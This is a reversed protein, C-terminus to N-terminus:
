QNTIIKMVHSKFKSKSCVFIDINIFNCNYSEVMRRIPCRMGSNTRCIDVAFLTGARTSRINATRPVVYCLKSTLNICDFDGHVIGYLVSAELYKRRSELNVQGYKDLLQSYPLYTKHCRYHMARLFKRQVKEIEDIYKQYFPNWIPVAYELQSRVLTKYLYLYTSVRKFESSSRMVFGYMRFAKNVIKEVHQNLSLKDDILVGLDKVTSVNSLATDHLSYKFNIVIKNKTFNICNCKSLSLHLKNNLCYDTLRDLDQQFLRCDEVSQISRYAKLDDAYVLFKTNKFCKGIDNIYLIFLLPGLISGQPVGSTIHVADSQHGNVVVKQTRNKIYSSFWRLLNGRIGNFAIKNLLILHDVKDFAKQFDTYVADVQLRRDMNEFLYNSFILLNSVTSRRQVFGHQEPIIVSHLIPYIENHVLREFLKSLTSLISIPRYQEVDHKSGNKYVPTINAQKWEDPFVGESLCKNYIIFLPKCISGATAKFFMAPYGDPGAGKSPDLLKLEKLIKDEEIHLNDILSVNANCHTPPTWASLSPSSPEFVSQFFNSFMDCIEEPASSKFNQYHMTSPIGSKNKRNSIYTWFYKINTTLKDEVSKIYNSYCTNCADKFTVRYESFENYDKINKYKKWKVWLRQKRKYIKILQASFWVPFDPTRSKVRPVNRETIGGLVDYFRQVAERSPLNELLNVWEAESIQENIVDYNAKRFDYKSLPKRKLAQTSINLPATAVFPPHHTDIPLLSDIPHSITSATNSIFLDLIKGNANPINNFQYANLTSMLQALHSCIPSTGSYSMSTVQLAGISQGDKWAIEPLNYDGIIFINEVFLEILMDQLIDLHTTYVDATAWPPIYAASVVHMKSSNDKSPIGVALHEICTPRSSIDLLCSHLGRLVAVLVGGGDCKCTTDRDRDCRYVVYRPDMFESSAIDPILWTETLIIIDYSFSLINLYLTQM